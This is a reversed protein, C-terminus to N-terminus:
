IENHGPFEDSDMPGKAPHWTRIPRMLKEPIRLKRYIDRHQPEARGGKRIHLEEGSTTPLIVTAVQHTRLIERVTEWSRHDGQERLTHEVAVLLHYALVCLFIHTQTRREIQHFIPRECLPSKMDRFASEVRTLMSYIRWIEEGTLDQRDTKLLYGGDLEEARARVDTKVTWSFRKHEADYEIAYYRAVRPYREKLRGISEFIKSPKKVNGKEVRKQLKELDKLLRNEQKERIARDKEMRGESVCLVYIDGGKEAAKVLVRSKKQSPNTPSPTRFIEQWCDKDEFEALWQNRETQRGAVIYHLHRSKVEDINEDYAMGRDMVVTSGEKLSVRATLIDLMEGVTKRDQTNGDFVEHAKPFGEQGLVLGIVVQPCDPRKDRSYGRKAQPNGLMLGEFYTSTLDYLLVSSELNFLTNEREALMHEITNRLPYLRDMNRYLRDDKVQSFDFDLLDSLATREFWGPMAHESSPCILRNLIMALTLRRTDSSLGVSELIEEIGLRRYLQQGVHVPGAERHREMEVGDTDVEVM